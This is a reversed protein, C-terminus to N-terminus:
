REEQIPNSIADCNDTADIVADGDADPLGSTPANTVRCPGCLTPGPFSSDDFERSNGVTDYLVVRVRYTGYASFQADLFAVPDGRHDGVQTRDADVDIFRRVSHANAASTFWEGAPHLRVLIM